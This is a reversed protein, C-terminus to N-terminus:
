HINPDAFIPRRAVYAYNSDSVNVSISELLGRGGVLEDPLSELLVRDFCDFLIFESRCHLISIRNPELQVDYDFDLYQLEGPHGMKAFTENNGLHAGAFRVAM